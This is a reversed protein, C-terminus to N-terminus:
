RKDTKTKSLKAQTKRDIIIGERNVPEDWTSSYEDWHVRIPGDSSDDLATVPRWRGGWEIRLKTGQPIPTDAAVKESDDPIPSRSPYSKAPRTTSRDRAAKPTNTPLRDPATTTPLSDPRDRTIKELNEAFKRRADGRELDHQTAPRIALQSEKCRIEIQPQDDRVVLISGTPQIDKVTVATWDGDVDLKLPTGPVLKTNPRIKLHGIPLSHATGVRSKEVGKPVTTSPGTGRSTETRSSSRVERGNEFSRVTISESTSRRPDSLRGKADNGSPFDASPESRRTFPSQRRDPQPRDPESFKDKPAFLGNLMSQKRNETQDGKLREVIRVENANVLKAFKAAPSTGQDAKVIEVISQCLRDITELRGTTENRRQTFFKESQNRKVLYGATAQFHFNGESTLTTEPWEQGPKEIGGLGLTSVEVVENTVETSEDITSTVALPIGAVTETTTWMGNPAVERRDVPVFVSRLMEALDKEVASDAAARKNVPRSFESVVLGDMGVKFLRPERCARKASELLEASPITNSKGSQKASNLKTDVSMSNPAASFTLAYQELEAVVQLSDDQRGGFTLVLTADVERKSQPEASTADSLRIRYKLRTGPKPRWSVAPVDRDEDILRRPLPWSRVALIKDFFEGFAHRGLELVSDNVKWQLRFENPRTVFQMSIRGPGQAALQKGVDGLLPGFQQDFLLVIRVVDLQISIPSDSKVPKASVASKLRELSNRGVVIYATDNIVGWHVPGKFFEDSGPLAARHVAAGNISAVNWTIHKEHEKPLEVKIREDILKAFKAGEVVKLAFTAQLDDPKDADVVVAFDYRGSKVIKMALDIFQRMHRRMETKQPDTLEGRLELDKLFEAEMPESSALLGAQFAKNIPASILLSAVTKSSILGTFPSEIKEWEAVIAGLESNPKARHGAELSISKQQADVNVGLFAGDSGQLFSRVFTMAFEHSEQESKKEEDSHLPDNQFRQHERDREALFGDIDAQFQEVLAPVNIELALDDTAKVYRKPDPPENLSAATESFFYHSGVRKAFLGTNGVDYKLLEGDRQPKSLLTELTQEFQGPDAVPVFFVISGPEDANISTIFVGLRKTTDFGKLGRGKTMQDVVQPLSAIGPANFVDALHKSDSVLEDYSKLSITMVPEAARSATPFLLALMLAAIVCHCRMM